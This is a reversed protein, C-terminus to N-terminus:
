RLAMGVFQVLGGLHLSNTTSIYPLGIGAKCDLCSSASVVTEFFRVPLFAARENICLLSGCQSLAEACSERRKSQRPCCM